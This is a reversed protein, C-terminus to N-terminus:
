CCVEGVFLIESKNFFIFVTFLKNGLSILLSHFVIFAMFQAWYIFVTTYIFDLDYSTEFLLLLM